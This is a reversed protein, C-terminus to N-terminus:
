MGMDPCSETGMGAPLKGGIGDAENKEERM